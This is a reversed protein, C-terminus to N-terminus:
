LFGCKEYDTRREQNKVYKLYMLRRKSLEPLERLDERWDMEIGWRIKTLSAVEGDTLGGQELFRIRERRNIQGLLQDVTVEPFVIGPNRRQDFEVTM